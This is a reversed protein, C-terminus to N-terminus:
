FIWGGAAKIVPRRDEAPAAPAPGRGPNVQQPQNEHDGRNIDANVGQKAVHQDAAHQADICLAPHRGVAGYEINILSHAHRKNEDRLPQEVM